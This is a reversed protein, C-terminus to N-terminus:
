CGGGTNTWTFRIRSWAYTDVIDCSSLRPNAYVLRREQCQVIARHRGYGNHAPMLRWSGEASHDEITCPYRVITSDAGCLNCRAYEM